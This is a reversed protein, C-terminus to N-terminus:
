RPEDPESWKVDRETGFAYMLEILDIMQDKTMSSTHMGLFVIGGEIGQAFRNHRRLAATFVDKWDEEGMYSLHGNVKWKIQKSVDRLMPWM